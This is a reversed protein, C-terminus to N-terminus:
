VSGGFRGIKETDGKLDRSMYCRTKLDKDIGNFVCVCRCVRIHVKKKKLACTGDLIM